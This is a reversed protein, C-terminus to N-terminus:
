SPCYITDAEIGELARAMGDLTAALVAIEAHDLHAEYSNRGMAIRLTAVGSFGDKEGLEVVLDRPAWGADKAGEHLVDQLELRM